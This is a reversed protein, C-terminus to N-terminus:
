VLALPFDFNARNHGLSNISLSHVLSDSDAPAGNNRALFAMM